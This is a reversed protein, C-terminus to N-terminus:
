SGCLPFRKEGSLEASPWGASSHAAGASHASPPRCPWFWGWVGVCWGGFECVICRCVWLVIGTIALRRRTGRAHRITHESRAFDLWPPGDRVLGGRLPRRIVHGEGKGVQELRASHMAVLGKGDQVYQKPPNGKKRPRKMGKQGEMESTKPWNQEHEGGHKRM